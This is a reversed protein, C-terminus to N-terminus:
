TTMCKGPEKNTEGYITYTVYDICDITESQTM